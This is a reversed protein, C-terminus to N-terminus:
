RRGHAKPPTSTGRPLTCSGPAPEIWTPRCCRSRRGPSATSSPRCCPGFPATSRWGDDAGAVYDGWSRAEGADKGRGPRGQGGRAAATRAAGDRARLGRRPSERLGVRGRAGAARDVGPRRAHHRHGPHRHHDAAGARGAPEPPCSPVGSVLQSATAAASSAEGHAQRRGRATDGNITSWGDGAVRVFERLFMGARDNACRGHSKRGMPASGPARPSIRPPFCPVGCITSQLKVREVGHLLSVRAAPTIGHDTESM